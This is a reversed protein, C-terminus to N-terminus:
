VYVKMKQAPRNVKDEQGSADAVRGQALVPLKARMENLQADLQSLQERCWDRNEEAQQRASCARRAAETAEGLDDPLVNDGDREQRQCEAQARALVIASEELRGQLEAAGEPALGALQGVIETLDRQLGDREEEIASAQSVGDVGLRAMLERLETAALAVRDRRGDLDEGGPLVEVEALAEGITLTARQDIRLDRESNAALEEEVDGHRLVVRQTSRVRLRASTAELAATAERLHQEAERLVALKEKDVPCTAIEQELRARAQEAACVKEMQATLKGTEGRAHLMEVHAQALSQLRDAQRYDDEAAHCEAARKARDRDRDELEKGLTSAQRDIEGIREQHFRIPETIEIIELKDSLAKELNQHAIALDSTARRVEQELRCAEAQRGEYVDLDAKMVPLQQSLRILELQRGTYEESLREVNTAIRVERRYEDEAQRNKEEAEGLSSNIRADGAQTFVESVRRDLEAIIKAEHPTTLAAGTEASLVNQIEGRADVKLQESPLETSTGQTVWLLRWHALQEPKREGRGAVPIGVAEQLKREAEEGKLSELLRDGDWIRLECTGGQGKYHKSVRYRLSGQEFEM